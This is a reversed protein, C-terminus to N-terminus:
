KDSNWHQQDHIGFRDLVNVFDQKTKWLEKPSTMGGFAPQGHCNDFVVINSM